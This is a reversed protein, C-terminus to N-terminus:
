LKGTNFVMSKFHMLWKLCRNYLEQWNYQREGYILSDQEWFKQTRSLFSDTDSMIQQGLELLNENIENINEYVYLTTPRIRRNFLLM